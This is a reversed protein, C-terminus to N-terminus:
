PGPRSRAMSASLAVGILACGTVVPQVWAAAQVFILGSVSAATFLLAVGTWPV